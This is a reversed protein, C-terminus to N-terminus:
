LFGYMCAKDMMEELLALNLPLHTYLDIDSGRYERQIGSDARSAKLVHAMKVETQAYIQIFSKVSFFYYLTEKHGLVWAIM